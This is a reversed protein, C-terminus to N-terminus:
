KAVKLRRNIKVRLKNLDKVERWFRPVMWMRAATITLALGGGATGILDSHYMIIIEYTGLALMVGASAASGLIYSLRNDKLSLIIGMVGFMSSVGMGTALAHQLVPDIGFLATGHPIRGFLLGISVMSVGAMTSIYDPHRDLEARKAPIFKEQHAALQTVVDLIQQPDESEMAKVAIARQRSYTFLGLAVGVVLAGIAVYVFAAAVTM